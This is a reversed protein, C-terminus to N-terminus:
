FKIETPKTTRVNHKSVCGYCRNKHVCKCSLSASHSFCHNELCLPYVRPLRVGVGNKTGLMDNSGDFGGAALCKAPNLGDTEEM